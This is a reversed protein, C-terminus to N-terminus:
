ENGTFRSDDFTLQNISSKQELGRLDASFDSFVKAPSNTGPIVTGFYNKRNIAEVEEPSRFIKTEKMEPSYRRGDLPFANLADEEGGVKREFM